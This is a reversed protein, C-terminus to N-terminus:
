DMRERAAYPDAIGLQALIETELAEMEEAEEDSEHDYGILHLFGHVTLHSLHHDFPKSAEDAERRMTQYAIAIDGLMRPPDDERVPGTPQLAPFSLVNTPKDLGRWNRNLTRIGEDDTLMVAIEADGGDVDAIEAAANIARHIVAEADPQDQWCDAAVIVETTPIATDTM